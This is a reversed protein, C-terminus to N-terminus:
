ANLLAYKKKGVFFKMLLIGLFLRMELIPLYIAERNKEGKGRSSELVVSLALLFEDIPVEVVMSHVGEVTPVVGSKAVQDDSDVEV